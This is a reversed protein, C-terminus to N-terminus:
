CQYVSIVRFGAGRTYTYSRGSGYEGMIDMFDRWFGDIEKELEEPTLPKEARSQRPLVTPIQEGGEENRIIDIEIDYCIPM